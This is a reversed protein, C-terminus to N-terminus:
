KKWGFISTKSLLQLMQFVELQLTTSVGRQSLRVRRNKYSERISLCYLFLYNASFYIYPPIFNLLPWSSLLNLYRRHSQTHGWDWRKNWVLFHPPPPSDLAEM